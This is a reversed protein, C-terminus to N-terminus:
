GSWWYCDSSCHFANDHQTYMTMILHGHALHVDSGHLCWEWEANDALCVVSVCFPLLTICQGINCHQPTYNEEIFADWLILSDIRMLPPDSGYASYVSSHNPDLSKVASFHVQGSSWMSNKGKVWQGIVFHM